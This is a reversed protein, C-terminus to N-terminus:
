SRISRTTACFSARRCYAAAGETCRRCGPPLAGELLALRAETDAEALDVNQASLKRSAYHNTVCVAGDKLKRVIAADVEREIVVGEDPKVGSVTFLVPALLPVAKLHRVAAAFDRAEDFAQRVAWTVPWYGKLARGLIGRLSSQDVHTVYNVTIAFRGPAVGTLVGFLGPWTVVSYDGSPGNHFRVVTTHKRLLEGPFAWDLNRAHLPGAEDATVFTSCGCNTLDYALNALLIDPESSGLSEALESIENRYNGGLVKNLINAAKKAAALLLRSGTAAIAQDRFAGLLEQAADRQGLLSQSWIGDASSLDIDLVKITM